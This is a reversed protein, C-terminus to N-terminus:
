VALHTSLELSKPADLRAEIARLLEEAAAEAARAVLVRVSSAIPVLDPYLFRTEKLALEAEERLADADDLAKTAKRKADHLLSPHLDDVFAQISTSPNM